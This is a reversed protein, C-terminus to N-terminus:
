RPLAPAQSALVRGEGARALQDPRTKPAAMDLFSRLAASARRDQRVILLTSVDGLAPPLPHIRLRAAHPSQAVVARPLLTVGMGAAVCGLLGPATRIRDHKGILRLLVY